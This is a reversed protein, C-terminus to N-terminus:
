NSLKAAEDAVFRWHKAQDDAGIQRYLEAISRRLAVNHPSRDAVSQLQQIQELADSVRKHIALQQRALESRGNRAYAQGLLHHAGAHGPDIQVLQDLTEIASALDDEVFQIRGLLLLRENEDPTSPLIEELISRAGALDGELHLLKAKTLLSKGLVEPAESQIKDYLTRSEAVQGLEILKLLLRHRFESAHEPAIEILKRYAQAEQEHRNLDRYIKAFREWVYPHDPALKVLEQCHRLAEEKRSLRYRIEIATELMKRRQEPRASAASIIRDAEALHGSQWSLAAADLLDELECRETELNKVLSTIRTPQSSDPDGGSLEQVALASVLLLRAESMRDGGAELYQELKLEAQEAVARSQDASKAAFAQNLRTRGDELLTEDVRKSAPVFYLRQVTFAMVSLLLFSVLILPRVSRKKSKPSSGNSNTGIRSRSGRRKSLSM